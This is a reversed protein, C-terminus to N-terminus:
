QPLGNHSGTGGWMLWGDDRADGTELCFLTGTSSGVYVRGGAVAPQFAIPEGVTARWLEKGSDAGLCLIEGASTGVFVKGNVLAPPTLAADVVPGEGGPRLEKKWVVKKTRPDVCSLTHGMASYLRGGAVFPRSGQYAWIGSVTGQGLNLVSAGMSGGPLGAVSISSSLSGFGVSKDLEGNKAESSSRARKRADLYDAALTTSELSAFYAKGGAGRHALMETQQEIPEGGPGKRKVAERHSFYCRGDWVTPSSTANCRDSWLPEGARAGFCYLTGDVTALHVQEGHLVPATIIEGAIPMKWHEAGTKLDFCVLAHKGAAKNDPYAMYIRGGAVAPMSMLPDGLWKKWVRTGDVMLVELECSETNFVVYGDEVVAATPGDDKTQYRWLQKGTRADLAFCEHSGFGAGLFVKGGVVAPTALPLRGSFTVQWGTRGEKSTFAMPASVEQAVMGVGEMAEDHARFRPFLGGAERVRPLVVLVYGILSLSLFLGTLPVVIKKM